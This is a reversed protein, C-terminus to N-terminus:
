KHHMSLLHSRLNTKKNKIGTKMRISKRHSEVTSTSVNLFVAIDKTTKGDKVLHAIEIETPTLGGYKSSLTHAFPLTIDNLNSELISLYAKQKAHLRSKQLKEAYPLVLEKVNSLVKEELEIRDEDRRKLLVRLATNVEELEHTKVELAAQREILRKEARKHETIDTFVTAFQGRRFSFASISFHKDMPPFYTEFSTPERSAAVKAYIEIYPPQGTGYLESARSRLAKEKKLGLIKEYSPNADLIIYDKAEGSEDYVVEHLAVGEKMTDYLSHYKAESERLAEEAQKRKTIDTPMITAGVVRRGRKIPGVHSLYWSTTGHPGDGAIEYRTARGTEFVHEISEKMVKHYDSPAYDYQSTGIADELEIGAVTQNIYQITGNRDVVMIFNPADEVLSRWKKVERRCKAVKKKLENVRRELQEYTPKKVM